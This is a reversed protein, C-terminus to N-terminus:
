CWIKGSSRYMTHIVPILSMGLMDNKKPELYFFPGKTEGYGGRGGWGLFVKSYM